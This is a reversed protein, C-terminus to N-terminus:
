DFGWVAQPGMCGDWPATVLTAAEPHVQLGAFSLFLFNFYHLLMFLVLQKWKQSGFPFIFFVWTFPNTKPRKTNCRAASFGVTFKGRAAVWKRECWLAWPNHSLGQIACSQINVHLNHPINVLFSLAWNWSKHHPQPKPNKAKLIKRIWFLWFFYCNENMNWRGRWCGCVLLLVFQYLPQQFCPFREGVVLPRRIIFLAASSVRFYCKTVQRLAFCPFYFLWFFSHLPHPSVGLVCRSFM